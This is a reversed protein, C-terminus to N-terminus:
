TSSSLLSSSTNTTGFAGLNVKVAAGAMGGVVIVNVRGGLMIDRWFPKNDPHFM